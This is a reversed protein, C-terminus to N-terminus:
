IDGGLLVKGIKGLFLFRIWIVLSFYFTKLISEDKGRIWGGGGYIKYFFNYFCIRGM